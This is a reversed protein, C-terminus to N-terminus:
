LLINYKLASAQLKDWKANDILCKKDFFFIIPPIFKFM